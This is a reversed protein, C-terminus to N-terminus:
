VAALEHCATTIFIRVTFSLEGEEASISPQTPADNDEPFYANGRANGPPKEQKMEGPLRADKEDAEAQWCGWRM